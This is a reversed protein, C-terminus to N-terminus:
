YWIVVEYHALVTRGDDSAITITGDESSTRPSQTGYRFEYSDKLAPGITEISVYIGTADIISAATIAKSGDFGNMKGNEITIDNLFSTDIEKEEPIAHVYALLGMFATLTITIAMMAMMAEMFGGIGKNNM